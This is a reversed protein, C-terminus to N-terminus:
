QWTQIETVVNFIDDAGAALLVQATRMGSTVGIARAGIWQAAQMDLETDGVWALINGHISDKVAIAKGRAADAQHPVILVHRFHPSLGLRALQVKLAQADSRLTVLAFRVTDEWAQLWGVVGPFLRDLKLMEVSEIHELWMSDALTRNGQLLGNQLLVELNSLGRRRHQWYASFPLIRMQMSQAILCYVGYHRVSTDLLTGDLDLVVVPAVSM